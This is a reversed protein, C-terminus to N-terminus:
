REEKVEIWHETDEGKCNGKWPCSRCSCGERREWRYGPRQRPPILADRMSPDTMM